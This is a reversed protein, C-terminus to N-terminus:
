ELDELSLVRRTAKRAARLERVSVAHRVTPSYGFSIQFHGWYYGHGTDGRQYAAIHAVEHFFTERFQHEAARGPQLLDNLRIWGATSALGLCGEMRNSWDVPTGLVILQNHRELTAIGRYLTAEWGRQIAFTEVSTTM